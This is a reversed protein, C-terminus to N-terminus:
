SSREHLGVTLFDSVRDRERSSQNLTPFIDSVESSRSQTGEGENGLLWFLDPMSSFNWGCDAGSVFYLRHGEDAETTCTSCVGPQSERPKNKCSGLCDASEKLKSSNASKRYQSM